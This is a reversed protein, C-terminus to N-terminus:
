GHYGRLSLTFISERPTKPTCINQKPKNKKKEKLSREKIFILRFGHTTIGATHPTLTFFIFTMFFDRENISVAEMLQFMEMLPFNIEM